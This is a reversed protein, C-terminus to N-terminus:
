KSAFHQNAWTMADQDKMLVKGTPDLVYFTPYYTINLSRALSRDGDIMVGDGLSQAKQGNQGPSREDGVIIQFGYETVSQSKHLFTKLIPSMQECAPCWPAIYVIACLKKGTCVNITQLTQTNITPKKNKQWLGFSLLILLLFGIKM